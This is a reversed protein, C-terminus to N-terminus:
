SSPRQILRLIEEVSITNGENVEQDTEYSDGFCAEEPVDGTRARARTQDQAQGQDPAVSQQRATGQDALGASPLVVAWITLCALLHRM